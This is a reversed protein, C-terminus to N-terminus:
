NPTIQPAESSSSLLSRYVRITQKNETLKAWRNSPQHWTKLAAAYCSNKMVPRMYIDPFQWAVGAVCLMAKIVEEEKEEEEETASTLVTPPPAATVAAKVAVYDEPTLKIM